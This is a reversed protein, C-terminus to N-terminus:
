VCLHDLVSSIRDGENSLNTAGEGVFSWCMNDTSLIETVVMYGSTRWVAAYLHKNSIGASTISPQAATYQAM